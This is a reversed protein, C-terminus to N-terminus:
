SDDSSDIMVRQLLEPVQEGRISIQIIADANRPDDIILELETREELEVGHTRLDTREYYRELLIAPFEQVTYFRLTEAGASIMASRMIALAVARDVPVECRRNADGLYGLYQRVVPEHSDSGVWERVHEAFELAIPMDVHSRVDIQWIPDVVRWGKGHANGFEEINVAGQVPLPVQLGGVESMAFDASDFLSVSGAYKFRDFHNPFIFIPEGFVCGDRIEFWSATGEESEACGGITLM